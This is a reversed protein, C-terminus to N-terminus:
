SFQLMLYGGLLLGVGAGGWLLAWKNPMRSKRVSKWRRFDEDPQVGSPVKVVPASKYISYAMFMVFAGFALLGWSLCKLFSLGEWFAAGGFDFM